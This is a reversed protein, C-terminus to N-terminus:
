KGGGLLIVLEEDRDRRDRRIVQRVSPSRGYSAGGGSGFTPAPPVATKDMLLHAAATGVPLGSYNTLAAGTTAGTGIALLLAAATGGHGALHLLREAATTM